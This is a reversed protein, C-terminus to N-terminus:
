DLAFVFLMESHQLDTYRNPHVHLGSTQLALFQKGAVAFTMSDQFSIGCEVQHAALLTEPAATAYPLIVTHVEAHPLNFSGGLTHCLKHHIAMGVANLM